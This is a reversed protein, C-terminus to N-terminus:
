RNPIALRSAAEAEEYRVDSVYSLEGYGSLSYGILEAFQARDDDSFSMCALQNLDLSPHTDLLVQVIPNAKFRLVGRDDYVMPQMPNM